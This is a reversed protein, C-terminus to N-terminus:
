RGSLKVELVLVRDPLLIAFLTNAPLLTNIPESIQFKHGILIQHLRVHCTALEAIEVTVASIHVRARGRTADLFDYVVVLILLVFHAKRDPMRIVIELLLPQELVVLSDIVLDRSDWSLVLPHRDFISSSRLRHLDDYLHFLLLCRINTSEQICFLLLELIPVLSLM